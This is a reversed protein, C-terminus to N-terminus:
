AAGLLKRVDLDAWGIRETFVAYPFHIGKMGIDDSRFTPLCSGLLAHIEAPAVTFNVGRLVRTAGYSKHVERVELLYIPDPM